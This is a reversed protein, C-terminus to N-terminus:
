EDKSPYKRLISETETKCKEKEKKVLDEWRKRESQIQSIYENSEKSVNRRYENLFSNYDRILKEDFNNDDFAKESKLEDFEYDSIKKSYLEKIFKSYAEAELYDIKKDKNLDSKKLILKYAEKNKLPEFYGYCFYEGVSNEYVNITESIIGASLNTLSKANKNIQYEPYLIDKELIASKTVYFFGSGLIAISIFKKLSKKMNEGFFM